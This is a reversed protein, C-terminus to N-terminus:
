IELLREYRAAVLDRINELADHDDPTLNDLGGRLEILRDRQRAIEEQAALYEDMYRTVHDSLTEHPPDSSAAPEVAGAGPQSPPQEETKPSQQGLTKRAEAVRKAAIAQAWELSGEEDM